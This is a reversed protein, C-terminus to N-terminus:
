GHYVYMSTRIHIHLVPVLVDGRHTCTTHVCTTYVSVGSVRVVLVTTDDTDSEESETNM